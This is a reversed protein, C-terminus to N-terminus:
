TCFSALAKAAFVCSKYGYAYIGPPVSPESLHVGGGGKINLCLLLEITRLCAHKKLFNRKNLCM